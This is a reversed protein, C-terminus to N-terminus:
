IGAEAELAKFYAIEKKLDRELLEYNDEHYFPMLVAPGHFGVKKLETFVQKYDSCGEFAPAFPRRWGKTGDGKDPDQVLLADKAGLAAIYEGLLPIQYRYVEFGEQAYNNGPDLKIGIWRPNLGKIAFYASTANHPYMYGHLQVIAQIGISEAVEAVHTMNRVAFDHMERPHGPFKEKVVYALRFQEIGADKMAKLEDIHADIGDMPIDTDAYKVELGCREAAKVYNGVESFFNEKNLWYGDRILATPGDLGLEACKEMLGDLSFQQFFKAFLYHKM